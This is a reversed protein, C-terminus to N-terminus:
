RDMPDKCARRVSTVSAGLTKAIKRWSWGETRLEHAKSYSFIVRPRGVLKRSGTGRQSAYQVDVVVKENVVSRELQAMAAIMDLMVKGAPSTTDVAEQHIVFDIGLVRFEEITLVLQKVSRALRDFSWVVLVDFARRRAEVMLADLSPRQEKEGSLRDFFVKYLHGGRQEIVERLPQEQAEPDPVFNTTGGSSSESATSVSVYLAYRLRSM